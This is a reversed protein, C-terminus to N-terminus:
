KPPVRGAWFERLLVLSSGLLRYWITPLVDFPRM